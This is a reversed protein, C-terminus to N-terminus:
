LAETSLMTNTGIYKLIYAKAIYKNQKYHNELIQIECPLTAVSNFHLSINSLRKSTLRRRVTDIILNQCNIVLLIQCFFCLHLCFFFNHMFM